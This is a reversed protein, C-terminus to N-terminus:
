EAPQAYLANLYAAIRVSAQQLRLTATPLHEYLYDWSLDNANDPYVTDRIATSEAIWVHPDTNSWQTVDQPEIKASLWESWESYSLQRRDLLGSDWVRHLNSDEWFFRVKVDNGGRDTGNGAHLPQHLDGIIHVIFRLARQKDARSSQEDLLVDKFTALATVSDGQEPAGVEHYHKGVPVTVYHYPGAVNQWFDDPNSRMEDAYTSAEALSENPLLQQVANKASESLYQEAIKGTIRHGIQGWASVQTSVLLLSALSTLLIFLRM